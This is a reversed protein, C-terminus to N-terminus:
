LPPPPPPFFPAAPALHSDPPAPQFIPLGNKFSSFMHAVPVRNSSHNTTKEQARNCEGGLLHRATRRLLSHAAMRCSRCAALLVRTDQKGGRFYLGNLTLRHLFCSGAGM